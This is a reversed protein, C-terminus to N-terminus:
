LSWLYSSEPLLVFLYFSLLTEGGFIAERLFSLRQANKETKKSLSQALCSGKDEVGELM